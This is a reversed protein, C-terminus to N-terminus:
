YIALMIYSSTLVINMKYQVYIIKEVSSGSFWEVSAAEVDSTAVSIAVVKGGPVSWLLMVQSNIKKYYGANQCHCLGDLHFGCWDDSIEPEESLWNKMNLASHQLLLDYM